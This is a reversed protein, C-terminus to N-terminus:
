LFQETQGFVLAFNQWIWFVCIFHDLDPLYVFWLGFSSFAAAFLRRLHIPIDCGAMLFFDLALFRV